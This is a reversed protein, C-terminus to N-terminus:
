LLSLIEKSYFCIKQQIQSQILNLMKSKEIWQMMQGAHVSKALQTCINKAADPTTTPAAFKSM